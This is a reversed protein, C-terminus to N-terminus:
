DDKAMARALYSGPGYGTDDDIGGGYSPENDDQDCIADWMEQRSAGGFDDVDYGNEELEDLLRKRRAQRRQREVTVWTGSEQDDCLLIPEDPVVRQRQLQDIAMRQDVTAPVMRAQTKTHHCTKCLLQLNTLDPSDGDIHDIEEGQGGCGRCLGEDRKWVQDRTARPLRRANAAYGGALLHAIQITLAERVDPRALRDDRVIRRWYRVTSATQRCLETCFLGTVQVPLPNMCNACDDDQFRRSAIGAQREATPLVPSTPHDLTHQVAAATAELHTQTVPPPDDNRVHRLATSYSEGTLAMRARAARKKRRDDTASPEHDDNTM